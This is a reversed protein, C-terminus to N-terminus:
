CGADALVLSWWLCRLFVHIRHTITGPAICSAVRPRLLITAALRRAQWPVHALAITVTPAATAAGVLSRRQTYKAAGRVGVPVERAM